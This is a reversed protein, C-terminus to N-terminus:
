LLPLARWAAFPTSLFLAWLFTGVFFTDVSFSRPSFFLAHTHARRITKLRDRSPRSVTQTFGDGGDSRGEGGQAIGEGGQAIGGGKGKVGEFAM